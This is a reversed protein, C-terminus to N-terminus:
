SRESVTESERERERERQTHTHTGKRSSSLYIVVDDDFYYINTYQLNNRCGADENGVYICVCYALLPM